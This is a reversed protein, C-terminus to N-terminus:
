DLLDAMAATESRESKELKVYGFRPHGALREVAIKMGSNKRFVEADVQKLDGDFWITSGEGVRSILLQFHEKTLNEAESVFIISHKIDRGRISGLHQAVVKNDSIMMKLVGDGGLADSFCALWPLLKEDSSGPLYGIDRADALKVNNRILVVRDYVGAEIMQIAAASLLFTKGSGFRGAVMKVTIDDNKLLDILLEQQLNRPKTKGGFRSQFHQFSVDVFKEGDWRLKDKPVGDADCIVAYENVLCGVANDTKDSSYIRSILEDDTVYKYGTYEKTGDVNSM